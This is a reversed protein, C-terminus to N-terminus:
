IVGAVKVTGPNKSKGMRSQTLKPALTFKNTWRPGGPWCHFMTDVIDVKVGPLTQFFVRCHGILTALIQLGYEDSAPWRDMWCYTSSLTFYTASGKSSNEWTVHKLNPFCERAFGQNLKHWSKYFICSPLCQHYVLLERDQSCRMSVRLSATVSIGRWKLLM